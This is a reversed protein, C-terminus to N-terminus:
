LILNLNSLNDDGVDVLEELRATADLSCDRMTGRFWMMGGSELLMACAVVDPIVPWIPADDERTYTNIEIRDWFWELRTCADAGGGSIHGLAAATLAPQRRLIGELVLMMKGSQWSQLAFSSGAFPIEAELDVCSGADWGCRTLAPLLCHLSRIIEIDVLRQCASNNLADRGFLESINFTLFAYRGVHSGHDNPATEMLTGLSKIAPICFYRAESTWAHWLASMSPYAVAGAPSQRLQRRTETILANVIDAIQEQIMKGVLIKHTPSTSLQLVRLALPVINADVLTSARLQLTGSCQYLSALVRLTASFLRAAAGTLERRAFQLSSSLRDEHERLMLNLAFDSLEVLFDIGGARLWAEHMAATDGDFGSLLPPLQQDIIWALQENRRTSAEAEARVKLSQVALALMDSPDIPQGDERTCIISGKSGAFLSPLFEWAYQLLPNDVRRCSISRTLARHVSGLLNAEMLAPVLRADFVRAKVDIASTSPLWAAHQLACKAVHIMNDTRSAEFVRHDNPLVSVLHRLLETCGVIMRRFPPSLQALASLIHCVSIYCDRGDESSSEAGAEVKARCAHLLKAMLPLSTPALTVLAAQCAKVDRSWMRCGTPAIQQSILQELAVIANNKRYWTGEALEPPLSADIDSCSSARTTELDGHSVKLRKSSRAGAGGASGDNTAAQCGGGGALMTDRAWDLLGQVRVLAPLSSFVSHRATICDVVLKCCVLSRLDHAPVQCCTAIAIRLLRLAQAESLLLKHQQSSQAPAAPAHLHADATSSPMSESAALASELPGSAIQAESVEVSEGSDDAGM